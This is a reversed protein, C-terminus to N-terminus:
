KEVRFNASRWPTIKGRSDTAQVDLRYSGIPLKSIDMGRGVPIIPTEAKVYPAASIPQSDSIAEGTKLDIIRMKIQVGAPSQGEILPEYIEFYTYLTGGKKFHTNGTPKFEVDRSMLPAYSAPLKQGWAGPLNPRNQSSYAAVDSVQKCFSVESIALENRDYGDVKLPIDTRGVRTGNGLAVRLEYEGPPLNLQTEYHTWKNAHEIRSGPLKTWEGERGGGGGALDSFRTVPTGDKKFILGLVGLTSSQPQRSGWSWDVSIHVRAANSNTFLPPALLSVDVRDDKETAIESELQTGLKTGKIPDSADHKVNCYEDRAAILANRRNVTVKIGHCSDEPSDPLAYAITYFPPVIEAILGPPWEATSWKGGGPGIYETHHGANDRVDWYLSRVYSVNQIIREKGDDFVHFDAATLGRIVVGDSIADVLKMDGAFAARFLTGPDNRLRQLGDKDLVFVSVLIQNTEVRIAEQAPTASALSCLAIAGALIAVIPVRM